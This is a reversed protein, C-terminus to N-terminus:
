IPDNRDVAEREGHPYTGNITSWDSRALKVSSQLIGTSLALKTTHEPM